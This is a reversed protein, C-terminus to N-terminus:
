PTDDIRRWKGHSIEHLVRATGEMLAIERDAKTQTLKGADIWRPYVRKRLNIEREVCALYEPITPAFLEPM